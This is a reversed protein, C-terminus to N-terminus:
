TSEKAIQSLARVANVCDSVAYNHIRHANIPDGKLRQSECAKACDDIIKMRLAENEACLVDMAFEKLKVIADHDAVRMWKGDQDPCMFGFDNPTYHHNMFRGMTTRIRKSYM